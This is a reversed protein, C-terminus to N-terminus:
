ILKGFKDRGEPFLSTLHDILIQRSEEPSCDPLTPSDTDDEVFKAWFPGESSNGSLRFLADPTTISNRQWGKYECNRGRYVRTIDGVVTWTGMDLFGTLFNVAQKTVKPILYKEMHGGVKKRTEPPVEKELISRIESSDLAEHERIASLLVPSLYEQLRDDITAAKCTRGEAVQYKAQSRRWNMLHRYLEKTAFAARRSIYKGYVIGERVADVKWDWPGLEDSSYFWWDPHTLEEISWGRVPSMFFPIMGVERIVNIMSQASNIPFEDNSM